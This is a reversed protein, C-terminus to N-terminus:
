LLGLVLKLASDVKDMAAGALTKVKSTLVTRDGHHWRLSSDEMAFWLLAM